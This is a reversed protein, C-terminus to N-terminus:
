IVDDYFTGRFKEFTKINDFYSKKRFDNNRIKM